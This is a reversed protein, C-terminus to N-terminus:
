TTSTWRWLQTQQTTTTGVPHRNQQGNTHPPEGSKVCQSPISLLGLPQHSFMLGTVQCKYGQSELDEECVVVMESSPCIGRTRRTTTRRKAFAEALCRARREGETSSRERATRGGVVRGGVDERGWAATHRSGQSWFECHMGWVIGRSGHFLGLVVEASESNKWKRISDRIAPDLARSHVAISPSIPQSFAIGIRFRSNDLGYVEIGSM